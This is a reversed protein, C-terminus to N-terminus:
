SKTHLRRPCVEDDSNDQIMEGKNETEGKWVPFDRGEQVLKDNSSLRMPCPQLQPLLRPDFSPLPAPYGCSYPPSPLPNSGRNGHVCTPPPYVPPAYMGGPTSNAYPPSITPPTAGPNPYQCPQIDTAKTDKANQLLAPGGAMEIWLSEVGLQNSDNHAILAKDPNCLVHQYLAGDINGITILVPDSKSGLDDSEDNFLKISQNVLHELKSEEDSSSNEKKM